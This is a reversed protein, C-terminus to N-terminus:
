INKLKQNILILIYADLIGYNIQNQLLPRKSWDSIQDRKDLEKGFIELTIIKLEPTKKNTKTKYIDSLDLFENKYIIERFFEGLKNADNMFEFGIFKTDIFIQKIKEKIEKNKYISKVDFIFGHNIGAIQIIDALHSNNSEVINLNEKYSEYFTQSSKWETDIGMYKDSNLKNKIINDLIDISKKIYDIDEASIYYIIYDKPLKFYKDDNIKKFEKEELEYEDKENYSYNEILKAQESKNNDILYNVLLKIIKEKDKFKNYINILRDKGLKYQNLHFKYSNEISFENLIFLTKENIYDKLLKSYKLIFKMIIKTIQKDKKEILINIQKDIDNTFIM